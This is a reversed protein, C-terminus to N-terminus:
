DKHHMIFDFRSKWRLADSRNTELKEYVSVLTSKVGFVCDSRLYEDADVFTHTVVKEFGPATVIFHMHAPRYPHRGLKGLLQGVPGDNPIPYPVPKIGIFCYAGDPGTTFRGRNNWMPQIDPQQVDYFGDANDSWVDIIAGEIPIGELDKVSGSFSCLDGKSDLVIKEGM